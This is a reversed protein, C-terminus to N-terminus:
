PCVFSLPVLALHSVNRVWMGVLHRWFSVISFLGTKYYSQGGHKRQLPELHSRLFALILPLDPIRLQVFSLRTLSGGVRACTFRLRQNSVNTPLRVFLSPLLFFYSEIQFWSKAASSCIRLPFPSSLTCSQQDCIGKWCLACAAYM